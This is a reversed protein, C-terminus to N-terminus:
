LMQIIAEAMRVHKQEDKAIGEIIERDAQDFIQTALSRYFTEAQLELEKIEEVERILKENENNM